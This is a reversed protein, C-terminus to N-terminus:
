GAELYEHSKPYERMTVEQPMNAFQGRGPVKGERESNGAGFKMGKKAM